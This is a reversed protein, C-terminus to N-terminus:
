KIAIGVYTAWANSHPFLLIYNFPPFSAPLICISLLNIYLFFFTSLPNDAESGPSYVQVHIHGYYEFMKESVAQGTLALDFGLKIHLM